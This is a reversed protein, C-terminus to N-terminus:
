RALMLAMAYLFFGAPGLISRSHRAVIYAPGALAMWVFLHHLPFFAFYLALSVLVSYLSRAHRSKLTSLFPISLPYSLILFAVAKLKSRELSM